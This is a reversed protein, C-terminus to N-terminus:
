NQPFAPVKRQVSRLSNQNCLIRNNNESFHCHNIKFSGSHCSSHWRALRFIWPAYKFGVLLKAPTVCCLPTDNFVQWARIICKRREETVHLIKRPQKPMVGFDIPSSDRDRCVSSAPAWYISPHPRLTCPPLVQRFVEEGEKGWGRRNGAVWM